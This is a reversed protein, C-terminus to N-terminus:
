VFDDLSHQGDPLRIAVRRGRSPDRSTHPGTWHLYRGSLDLASLLDLNNTEAITLCSLIVECLALLMDSRDLDQLELPQSRDQFTRRVAARMLEQAIELDQRPRDDTCGCQILDLMGSTNRFYRHLVEHKELDSVQGAYCQHVRQTIAAFGGLDPAKTTITAKTFM